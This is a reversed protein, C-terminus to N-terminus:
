GPFDRFIDTEPVHAMQEQPAIMILPAGHGGEANVILEDAALAAVFLLEHGIGFGHGIHHAIGQVVPGMQLELPDEADIRGKGFLGSGFDPFLAVGQQRLIFEPGPSENFFEVHLEDAGGVVRHIGQFPVVFDRRISGELGPHQGGEAGVLGHVHVAGAKRFVHGPKRFDGAHCNAGCGVDDFGQFLPHGIEVGVACPNGVMSQILHGKGLHIEGPRILGKRLGQGPFGHAGFARLM